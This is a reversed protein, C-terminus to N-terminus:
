WDLVTYGKGNIDVEIKNKPEPLSEVNSGWCWCELGPLPIDVSARIIKTLHWWDVGSVPQKKDAIIYDGAQLDGIDTGTAPANRIHTFAKMRGYTIMTGGPPPTNDYQQYFEQETGNFYNMDIETTQVGYQAGVSPTGFQWLLLKTWPAPIKVLTANNTYWALHLDRNKLFQYQTNHTIPNSNATFWYYGTYLMTFTTNLLYEVRQMMTVVNQLGEWAGGYSREWDFIIEMEPPDNRILSAFLDAQFGPSKRGDYFWYVGRYMNRKKAEAWNRLFQADIWENQGARIIVADTMERMKDWNILGQWFSVDPLKKQQVIIASPEFAQSPAYLRHLLTNVNIQSQYSMIFQGLYAEDSM